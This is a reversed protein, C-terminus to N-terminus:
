AAQIFIVCLITNEPLLNSGSYRKRCVNYVKSCMYIYGTHGEVTDFGETITKNCGVRNELQTPM